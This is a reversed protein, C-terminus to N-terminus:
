QWILIVVKLFGHFGFGTLIKVPLRMLLSFSITHHLISEAGDTLTNKFLKLFLEDGLMDRLLEYAISSKDYASNRYSNYPLSLSPIMMPIDDETGALYEYNSVTSILRSNIGALKQMFKYPLMVAWGEDMFAYKKENTGVYFPFYQHALEHATLAVTNEWIDTSGDNIMM